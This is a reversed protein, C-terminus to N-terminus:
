APDTTVRVKPNRCGNSLNLTIARFAQNIVKRQDKVNLSEWDRRPDDTDPLDLPEDGTAIAEQHDLEAMVQDFAEDSIKGMVNNITAKDRRSRIGDIVAQDWGTGTAKWDAWQAPTVIEWLREMVVANANAEDISNGCVCTYRHCEPHPVPQRKTPNAKWKRIGLGHGCKGCTLIGSLLHSIQNTTGTRRDPNSLIAMVDGYVAPDVAPTWNGKILSGDNGRRLGYSTPSVLVHRMGRATMPMSVLKDNRTIETIPSLDRVLGRISAGQILRRAAETLLASETPDPIMEGKGTRVYGYPRKGGPTGGNATRNRDWSIARQARNESEIEAQYAIGSLQSRGMATSTDIWPEMVSYFMGGAADIRSWAKNFESGSRYFRDLKWVLFATAQGREIMAMAADFQPRKVNRKYASKGNEIFVKVVEWGRSEAYAISEREQNVLSQQDGRAKSVRVYVIAKIKNM